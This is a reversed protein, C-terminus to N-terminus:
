DKLGMHGQPQLMQTQVFILFTVIIPKFNIPTM